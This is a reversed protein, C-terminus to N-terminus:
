VQQSAAVPHRLAARLLPWISAARRALHAVGDELASTARVLAAAVAADRQARAWRHLEAADRTVAAPAAGEPELLTLRADAFAHLLALGRGDTTFSDGAGLVIDRSDGDQTLWVLGEFVAIDHARGDAMRLTRGRPLETMPHHLADSM